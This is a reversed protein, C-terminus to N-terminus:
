RQELRARLAELREKREHLGTRSEPDRTASILDNLVRIRGLCALHLDTVELQTLELTVTDM